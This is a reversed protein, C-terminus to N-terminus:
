SIDSFKHQNKKMKNASIYPAHNLDWKCNWYDLSSWQKKEHSQKQCLHHISPFM